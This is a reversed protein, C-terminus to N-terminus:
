GVMVWGVRSHVVGDHAAWKMRGLSMWAVGGVM